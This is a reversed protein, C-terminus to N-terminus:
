EGQLGKLIEQLVRDGFEIYLKKFEIYSKSQLITKNSNEKHTAWELNKIHNNTRNGDIHNVIPKKDPNPLFTNAILRHILHQKGEFYVYQYGGKNVKPTLEGFDKHYINGENSVSILDNYKKIIM